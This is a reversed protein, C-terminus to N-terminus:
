SLVQIFITCAHYHDSPYDRRFKFSFQPYLTIIMLILSSPMAYLPPFNTQGHKGTTYAAYSYTCLAPIMAM